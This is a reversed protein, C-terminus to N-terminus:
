SPRVGVNFKDKIFHRFRAKADVDLYYRYDDSTFCFDKMNVIGSEFREIM